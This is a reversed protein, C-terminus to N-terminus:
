KLSYFVSRDDKDELKPISSRGSDDVDDIPNFLINAQPTYDNIDAVYDMHVGFITLYELSRIEGHPLVLPKFEFSVETPFSGIDVTKIERIEAYNGTFESTQIENYLGGFIEVKGSKQATVSITAEVSTILGTSDKNIKSSVFTVRPHFKKADYFPANMKDVIKRTGIEASLNFIMFVTPILIPLSLFTLAIWKFSTKISKKFLFRHILLQILLLVLAIGILFLLLNELFPNTACTAGCGMAFFGFGVFFAVVLISYLIGFILNVFLSLISSRTM